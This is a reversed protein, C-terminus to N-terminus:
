PPAPRGNAVGHAPRRPVPCHPEPAEGLLRPDTADADTIWRGSVNSIFPITPREPPDQRVESEFATVIPDLLRSHFAHTNQVRSFARRARDTDPFIRGRDGATGGGRVPEPRQDARDLAAPFLAQLDAEPFTVALMRAAPLQDVLQTRRVILHLAGELSFVGALCAAVYEGMSHGVIAQPVVGLDHWLRALAYEITFLAPQLM